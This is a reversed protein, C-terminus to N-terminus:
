LRTNALLVQDITGLGILPSLKGVGLLKEPRRYGAVRIAFSKFALCRLDKEGTRQMGFVDAVPAVTKGVAIEQGSPDPM